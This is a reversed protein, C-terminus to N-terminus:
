SAAPLALAKGAVRPPTEQPTDPSVQSPRGPTKLYYVGPRGRIGKREGLVSAWAAHDRPNKKPSVLDRLITRADSSNVADNLFDRSLGQGGHKHDRVLLLIVRYGKGRLPMVETDGIWIPEGEGTLTVPCDGRPAVARVMADLLGLPLVTVVDQGFERVYNEAHWDGLPSPRWAGSPAHEVLYYGVEPVRILLLRTVTSPDSELQALLQQGERKIIWPGHALEGAYIM